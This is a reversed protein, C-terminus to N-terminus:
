VIPLIKELLEQNGKNSTLDDMTFNPHKKISNMVFKPCIYTSITFYIKNIDVNQDIMSM